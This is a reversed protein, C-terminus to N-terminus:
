GFGRFVLSFVSAGILILFVMSTVSLTGRMIARLRELTLQRRQLAIALAGFAGVGAAETPTAIGMLISGLVALILIVPPLLARAIRGASARGGDGSGHAPM